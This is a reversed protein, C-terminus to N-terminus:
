SSIPAASDWSAAPASEAADLESSPRASSAKVWFTHPLVHGLPLWTM